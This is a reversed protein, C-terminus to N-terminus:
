ATTCRNAESDSYIQQTIVVLRVVRFIRNFDFTEIEIGARRCCYDIVKQVAGAVVFKIM